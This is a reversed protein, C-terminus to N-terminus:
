SLETTTVIFESNVNETWFNQRLTVHAVASLSRCNGFRISFRIKVTSSFVPRVRRRHSRHRCTGLTPPSCTRLEHSQRSSVSCRPFRLQALASRVPFERPYPLPLFGCRIQLDPGTSCLKMHFLLEDKKKEACRGARQVAQGTTLTLRQQCHM